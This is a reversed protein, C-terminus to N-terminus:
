GNRIIQVVSHVITINEPIIIIKSDNVYCRKILGAVLCGDIQPTQEQQERPQEHNSTREHNRSRVLLLLACQCFCSDYWGIVHQVFHMNEM